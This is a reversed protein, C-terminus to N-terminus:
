DEVRQSFDKLEIATYTEFEDLRIMTCRECERYCWKNHITVPPLPKGHIGEYTGPDQPAEGLEDDALYASTPDDNDIRPRQTGGWAKNCKRDCVTIVDVYFYTGRGILM